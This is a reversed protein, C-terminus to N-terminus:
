SARLKQQARESDLREMADVPKLKLAAQLLQTRQKSSAADLLTLAHAYEV